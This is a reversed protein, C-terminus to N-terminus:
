KPGESELYMGPGKFLFVVFFLGIFFTALVSSTGFVGAPQLTAVFFHLAIFLYALQVPQTNPKGVIIWVFIAFLTFFSVTIVQAVLAGENLFVMMVQYVAQITVLGVFLALRDIRSLKNRKTEILIRAGAAFLGLYFGVLGGNFYIISLPSKIVSVFDTLIVSLKWVLVFYFIADVLLGAIKKGYRIRITAYAVVFAVILAGWSSPVTTKGIIFLETVLM